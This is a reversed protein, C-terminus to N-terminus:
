AIQPAIIANGAGVIEPRITIERSLETDIKLSKIYSAPVQELWVTQWIGSVRALRQRAEFARGVDDVNHERCTEVRWVEGHFCSQLSYRCIVCM